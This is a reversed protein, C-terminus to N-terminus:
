WSPKGDAGNGLRREALVKKAVVAFAEAALRRHAGRM